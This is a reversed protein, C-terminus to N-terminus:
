QALNVIAASFNDWDYSEVTKRIDTSLNFAQEILEAIAAPSADTDFLFGNEGHEILDPAFGTRSAVPVANSMMAEILPIPGGELSSISLFVDFASYIDPYERYPVSKYAFNELAKMEEFLAYRNWNKGLLLFQRHTLIKMVELLCDPNKREYFSSSLGVLGSGRAHYHFRTPDAGGLVVASKEEPLGRDIWIRRNSECAFIVKTVNDFALLLKAVRVPDEERPHTYWVFINSNKLKDPQRELYSELLLYHSFFYNKADPSIEPHYSVTWSDQQRSGIERCIADLIWGRANQHVIFAWDVTGDANLRDPYPGAKITSVAPDSAHGRTFKSLGGDVAEQSSLVPLGLEAAFGSLLRAVPASRREVVLGSSGLLLNRRGKLDGSFFRPIDPARTLIAIFEPQREILDTSVLTELRLDANRKAASFVAKANAASDGPELVFLLRHRGGYAPKVGKRQIANRLLAAWIGGLREPRYRALVTRAGKLRASVLRDRGPGLCLRLQDEVRGSFIVDEFEALAASKTTVVPVNMALAQLVRNSSKISSFEDDGTTLLAADSGALESYVAQASWPVYRTPFGCDHVLARYVTANNSLIVLELPISQHVGELARLHPKLSFMGFNSHSAGYNGFWVIRRARLPGGSSNPLQAVLEDGTVAKCTARYIDWTEAIDPIVHVSVGSVGHDVAYGEIRDAMESSPVTVGALFPAVGLFHMLNVGLENKAYRSAILDDCLDLFVPVRFLRAAAVLELAKRDLRKVIIIADLGAIAAELDAPATFYISEFHPALVRAFHYCRYRVSAANVDTTQVLWGIKAKSDKIPFASELVVSEFELRM